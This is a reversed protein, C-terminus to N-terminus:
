LYLLSFFYIQLLFIRRNTNLINTKYNKDFYAVTVHRKM